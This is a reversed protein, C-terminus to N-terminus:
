VYYKAITYKIFLEIIIIINCQIHQHAPQQFFTVELQAVTVDFRRRFHIGLARLHVLEQTANRVLTVYIYLIYIYLYM